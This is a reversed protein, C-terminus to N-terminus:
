VDSNIFVKSIQSLAKKNETKILLETRLEDLRRFDKKSRNRHDDVDDSIRAVWAHIASELRSLEGIFWDFEEDAFRWLIDNLDKQFSKLDDVNMDEFEDITMIPFAVQRIDENMEVTYAEPNLVVKKRDCICMHGKDIVLISGIGYLNDEALEGLKCRLSPPIESYTEKRLEYVESDVQPYDSLVVDVDDKTRIFTYTKVLKTNGYYWDLQFLVNSDYFNHGHSM